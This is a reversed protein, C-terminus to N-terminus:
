ARKREAERDIANLKGIVKGIFASPNEDKILTDDACLCEWLGSASNLPNWITLSPNRNGLETIRRAVDHEPHPTM